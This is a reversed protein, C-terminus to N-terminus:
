EALSYCSYRIIRIQAFLIRPFRINAGVFIRKPSIREFAFILKALVCINLYENLTEPDLIYSTPCTWISLKPTHSAWENRFVRYDNNLLTYFSYLLVTLKLVYYICCVQPTRVSIWLTRFVIKRGPFDQSFGPFTVFKRSQFLKLFNHSIKYKHLSKRICFIWSFYWSKLSKVLILFDHSFWQFIYVKTTM